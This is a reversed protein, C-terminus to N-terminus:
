PIKVRITTSPGVVSNSVAAVTIRANSRSKLGRFTVRNASTKRWSGNGFQYQYGTVRANASPAPSEWTVTVGGKRVASKMNRVAGPVGQMTLSASTTAGAGIANIAHVTFTYTVGPQLGPDAKGKKGFRCSLTTYATCTRDGPNATVRYNRIPQGGDNLPASWTISVDNGIQNLVLNRPSGPTTGTLWVREPNPCNHTTGCMLPTGQVIGISNSGDIGATNIGIARGENDVLPGGSSGPNIPATSILDKNGVYSVSGFTASGALGFPSGFAAVWQGVRPKPSGNWPLKPLDVTTLVAALDADWDWNWVKAPYTVGNQRIEIYKTAESTCGRIVHANTIIYSKYGSATQEDSLRTAAAWGSGLGRGCYITVVSKNIREVFDTLRQPAASPDWAGSQQTVMVDGGPEPLPTSAQAPLVALTLAVVSAGTITIMKM